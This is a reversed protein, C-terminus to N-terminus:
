EEGAAWALENMLRALEQAHVEALQEMEDRLAAMELHLDLMRTRMHVIVEVGQMSVGMGHLRRVRRAAEVLEDDPAEGSLVILRRDVCELLLDAEIDAERALRLLSEWARQDPTM